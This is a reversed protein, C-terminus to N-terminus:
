ITEDAAKVLSKFHIDKCNLYVSHLPLKSIDELKSVFIGQNPEFFGYCKTESDEVKFEAAARTYLEDISALSKLEIAVSRDGAKAQPEFHVKLM